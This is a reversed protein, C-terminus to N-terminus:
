VVPQHLDVMEPGPVRDLPTNLLCFNVRAKIFPDFFTGENATTCVISHTQHHM